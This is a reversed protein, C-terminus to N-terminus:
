PQLAAGGQHLLNSGWVSEMWKNLNNGNKNLSANTLAMKEPKSLGIRSYARCREDQCETFARDDRNTLHHQVEEIGSSM